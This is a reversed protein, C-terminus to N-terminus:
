PYTVVPADSGKSQDEIKRWSPDRELGRVDSNTNRPTPKLDPLPAVLSM